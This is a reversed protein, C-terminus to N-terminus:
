PCTNVTRPSGASDTGASSEGCANRGTVLYHFGEGALPIEADDYSTGPVSAALCDFGAGLLGRYVNSSDVASGNTWELTQNGAANWGLNQAAGPADSLAPDLPACDDVDLVGDNDDDPDVGDQYEDGDNDSCVGTTTLVPNALFFPEHYFNCENQNLGRNNGTVAGYMLRRSDSAHGLGTNHGYEHIWLIAENVVTGMRVVVIGDGPTNGCGVIGSGPGGCYGISRVVKIRASGNNIAASLETGNDIRDLGDGPSGWNGGSGLRSITICCAVDGDYDSRGARRNAEEFIADVRADTMPNNLDVHNSYDLGNDDVNAQTDFTLPLAPDQSAPPGPLGLADAPL